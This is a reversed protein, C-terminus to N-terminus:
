HVSPKVWEDSRGLAAYARRNREDSGLGLRVNKRVPHGRLCALSEPVVAPMKLLDLQRLSRAHALEGVDLLGKLGVLKVVKLKELTALRPLRQVHPLDELWLEELMTMESLWGLDVIGRVRRITLSTLKGVLPMHSGDALSGLTIWLSKLKRLPQLLAVDELPLSSLGLSQLNALSAIIDIDKTPGSFHLSKLQGFRGIVRMSFKKKFQGLSLNQLEDQLHRLGELNSLGYVEAAFGSLRPFFRLFELDDFKSRVGGDYVRLNAHPHEELFAALRRYEDDDLPAGIQVRNVHKPLPALMKRSLPSRLERFGHEFSSM